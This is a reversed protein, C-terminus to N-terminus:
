RLPERWVRKQEYNNRWGQRRLEKLIERSNRRIGAEELTATISGLSLGEGEDKLSKVAASLRPDSFPPPPAAAASATFFNEDLEKLIMAYVAIDDLSDYHPRGAIFNEAYRALKEAIFAVVKFREMTEPSDLHMPNADAFIAHLIAGTVGRSAPGYISSREATLRKLAELSEIVKASM